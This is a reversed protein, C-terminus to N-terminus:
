IHILSLLMVEGNPLNVDFFEHSNKVFEPIDSPNEILLRNSIKIDEGWNIDRFKFRDFRKVHVFGDETPPYRIATSQYYSPDYEGYFLLFIYHSFEPHSMVIEKSAYQDKSLIGQLKKYGNGWWQTENKPFHVYYRDLYILINFVFLVFVILLVINKYLLRDKFWTKLLNVFNNLGLATVLPLIPLIAFMRNTHPADKTISAAVPAILFWWFILATEKTKKTVFLYILGLFLFPAEIPYMNGFNAINHAKNEGGKIFLFQPSFANLYNQSVREITFALRNHTIRSMLSNPDDHQNRPIEIKAYVIAPDGFINIGSVKTQNAFFTHYWIFGSFLLFIAVGIFLYKTKPIAKRYILFIGIILLTTFIYNGAYVFYTTAFCVLSPIILWSANKISKLFLLTGLIIFFVAVNSESEVRSLHLHWPSLAVLLSTFLAINEANKLTFNQNTGRNRLLELVLLYTLGVTAIGFLASPMRVALESLGFVSVFPVVTYIYFPLKWDGFSQFSIPFSRGYEDKGTTLLSYATYGISGEDRNVGPPVETIRYLRLFGAIFLIILFFFVSKKSM